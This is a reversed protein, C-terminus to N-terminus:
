IHHGYMDGTGGREKEELRLFSNGDDCALGFYSVSFAPFVWLFDWCKRFFM